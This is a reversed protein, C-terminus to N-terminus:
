LSPDTLIRREFDRWIRRDKRCDYTRCISPRHAYVGCGRTEADSHVCWGDAGRRLEYPKAYNWKLTREDLDQPSLTVTMRCCRAKCIPIISACDIQPTDKIAYKDDAIALRVVPRERLRAATKDLEKQRRREYREPPLSGAAVLTDVLARLTAQVDANILSQNILQAYVGRLGDEVEAREVPASPLMEDDTDDESASV